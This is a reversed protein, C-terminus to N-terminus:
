MLAYGALRKGAVEGVRSAIAPVVSRVISGTTNFSMSSAVRSESYYHLPLVPNTWSQLQELLVGTISFGIKFKGDTKRVLELLIETAPLYSKRVIRELYARNKQTDFYSKGKGVDFVSFKALRYPQHVHMYFCVNEAM